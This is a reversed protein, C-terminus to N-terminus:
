SRPRTHWLWWLGVMPLVLPVYGYGSGFGSWVTQRDLAVGSPHTAGVVLVGVMEILVASWALRRLGKVMAVSAAIYILGAVLSLSYSVPAESARTVLQVVARSTAALAFIFYVFGLVRGFGHKFDGPERATGRAAPTEAM